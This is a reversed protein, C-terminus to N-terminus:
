RIEYALRALVLFPVGPPPMILCPAAESDGCEYLDLRYGDRAILSSLRFADLDAVGRFSERYHPM